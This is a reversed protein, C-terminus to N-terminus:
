VFLDHPHLFHNVSLYCHNISVCCVSWLNLEPLIPKKVHPYIQGGKLATKQGFVPKNFHSLTTICGSEGWLVNQM